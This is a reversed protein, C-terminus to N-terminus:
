IINNWLGLERNLKRKAITIYETSLEFGIYNRNLKRAVIATTGSGMFPDLVIGNEPCGALICDVILEPPFCAFHTEQEPKSPVTWVSRKIAAPTGDPLYNFIRKTTGKTWQSVLNDNSRKIRLAKNIDHSKKSAPTLIAKSDFYYKASKALLFIYEHAKVCRDKVSEPMPNPKHWIIDQRLYWGNKRLEFALLWPIGILDKQKLGAPVVAPQRNAMFLTGKNTAQKGKIESLYGHGSGAYSDGINLWLTGAPKLIRYVEMFVAVIKEIFMEPTDELGIQGNVGYDRLRYYPPSTVCCDVSNDPLTKLGVLCDTNHIINLEM